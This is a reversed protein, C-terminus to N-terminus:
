CFAIMSADITSRTFKVQSAWSSDLAETGALVSNDNALASFMGVFQAFKPAGLNFAMDTLAAQQGEHLNSFSPIYHAAVQAAEAVNAALLLNAQTQTLPVQALVVEGYDAGVSALMQPADARNLNFGYGVTPIGKTDLYVSPVGKENAAIMAAVSDGSSWLCQVDGPTFNDADVQAFADVGSNDPPYDGPPVPTGEDDGFYTTIGTSPDPQPAPAPDPNPSPDPIEPGGFCEGNFTRWCEPNPVEYDTLRIDRGPIVAQSPAGAAPPASAAHRGSPLGTSTTLAVALSAGVAVRVLATRTLKRNHLTIM